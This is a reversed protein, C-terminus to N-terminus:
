VLNRDNRDMQKETQKEYRTKFKILLMQITKKWFRDCNKRFIIMALSIKPRVPCYYKGSILVLALSYLLWPYSFLDKAEKRVCNKRNKESMIKKLIRM